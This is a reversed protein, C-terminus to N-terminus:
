RLTPGLHYLMFYVVVGTISVYAWIPFTRKAWKKHSEWNENKAFYLTMVIMPVMVAALIIHPILIVFYVTKLLGVGPFPTSGRFYHRTLYCALFVCSVGFASLMLKKHLEKNGKKIQYYGLMLFIFAIGNLAADIAPLNNLFQEFNM